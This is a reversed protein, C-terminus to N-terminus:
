ILGAALAMGFCWGAVCLAFIVGPPVRVRRKRPYRAAYKREVDSMLMPVDDTVFDLMTTLHSFDGTRVWNDRFEGWYGASAWPGADTTRSVEDRALEAPLDAPEAPAPGPTPAEAARRMLSLWDPDYLSYDDPDPYSSIDM